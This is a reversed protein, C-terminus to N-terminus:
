TSDNERFLINKCAFRNKLKEKIVFAISSLLSEKEEEGKGRM